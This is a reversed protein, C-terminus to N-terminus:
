VHARGIEPDLTRTQMPITGAPYWQDIQYVEVVTGHSVALAYEADQVSEIKRRWIGRTTEYLELESMGFRYLQNIKIIVINETIDKPQLMLQRETNIM